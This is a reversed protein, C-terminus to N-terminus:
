TNVIPVCAMRYDSAPFGCANAIIRTSNNKLHNVDDLQFLKKTTFTDDKTSICIEIQYQGREWYCLRKLIAELGKILSSQRFTRFCQEPTESPNIKKFEQWSSTINLLVSKMEAYCNNDVFMITYQHPEGPSLIFKSPSNVTHFRSDLASHPQLAFWDFQKKEALLPPILFVSFHDILFVKKSAALLGSLTLTPGYPHFGVNM